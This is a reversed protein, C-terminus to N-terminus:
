RMGGDIEEPCGQPVARYCAGNITHGTVQSNDTDKIKEAEEQHLM